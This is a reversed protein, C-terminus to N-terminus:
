QVVLKEQMHYKQVKQFELMYRQCTFLRFLICISEKDGSRGREGRSDKKLWLIKKLIKLETNLM